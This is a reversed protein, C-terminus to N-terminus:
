TQRTLHGKKGKQLDCISLIRKSFSPKVRMSVCPQLSNLTGAPAAPCDTVALAAIDAESGKTTAVTGDSAISILVLAAKDTDTPIYSTLDVTQYDVLVYATGTWVYGRSVTIYMSEPDTVYVALNTFARLDIYVPDNKGWRHADAHEGLENVVVNVGAPNAGATGLIRWQHPHTRGRGVRVALDNILPVADNYVECLGSEAGGRRVWVHNARVSGDDEYVQVNGLGDGLRGEWSPYNPERTGLKERFKNRTKASTM